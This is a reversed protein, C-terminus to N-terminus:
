ATLSFVPIRNQLPVIQKVQLIFLPNRRKVAAYCLCGGICKITHDTEGSGPLLRKEIQEAGKRIMKEDERLM